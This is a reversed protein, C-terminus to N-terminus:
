AGPNFAEAIATVNEIGTRSYGSLKLGIIVIVALIVVFLILLIIMRMNFEIAAKAM